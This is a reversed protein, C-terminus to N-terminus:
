ELNVSKAFDKVWSDFIWYDSVNSARIIEEM